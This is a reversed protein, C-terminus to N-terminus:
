VDPAVSAGSATQVLELFLQAATSAMAAQITDTRFRCSVLLGDDLEDVEALLLCWSPAPRDQLATGPARASSPSIESLAHGFWRTHRMGVGTASGSAAACAGPVSERMLCHTSHAHLDSQAQIGPSMPQKAALSPLVEIEFDDGRAIDDLAVGLLVVAIDLLRVGAEHAELQLTERARQSLSISMYGERKFIGAQEGELVGGLSAGPLTRSSRPRAGDVSTPTPTPSPSPSPSGDVGPRVAPEARGGRSHSGKEPHLLENPM